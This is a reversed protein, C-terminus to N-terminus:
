ALDLREPGHGRGAFELHYVPFGDVQALLSDQPQEGVALLVARRGTNTVDLLVGLLEEDVLASIVVVTSGYPLEPLEQSLLSALEHHGWRIDQALAELIVMLQEPRSSPPVRMYLDGMGWENVYLGVQCGADTAAAAVSATVTILYELLERYIGEYIHRATSANLFLV